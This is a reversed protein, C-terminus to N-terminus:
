ARKPSAGNTGSFSLLNCFGTGDTGVSFVTGLSTTGIGSTTGYLTSGNLTLGGYPVAGNSGNFSLLSRFTQANTSNVLLGFCVLIGACVQSPSSLHFMISTQRTKDPRSRKLPCYALLGVAGPGWCRWRGRNRCSLSCWSTAQFPSRQRTATSRAAPARWAPSQTANILTYNGPGFGDTWAFHFDSFQQGNFTVTGPSMSIEDDTPLGDLDFDMAASAALVLNGSLHLVGLPDGPALTGGANVTVGSLYGTGGLTGGNVSVASNTLWGDVALEGQTITTPGTYTNSGTLTLMGGGRKALSGGSGSIVGDFTTATAQNVTLAGNGLLVRSGLGDISSLSAITQTGGTMDLTGGNSITM